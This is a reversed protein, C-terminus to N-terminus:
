RWAPGGIWAVLSKRVGKKVPLVRHKLRSDFVVISGKSKPAFFLKNDSSLFQVEGGEYESPDSLQVTISLKRNGTDEFENMDDQHWKYYEGVGYTTLQIQGHIGEIDYHYHEKNAEWVYHWIIGNLWHIKPIWAVQSDRMDRNLGGGTIADSTQFDKNCEKVILDCLDSPIYWKNWVCDSRSM